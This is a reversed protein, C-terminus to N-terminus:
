RKRLIVSGISYGAGFSSLVALAGQPLDDQYTHFAIVSGASSTNGYTDLIVPAEEVSADRGLLKKVILHNMSLNAQHLWFRKVDTINIGNDQLHAAVLEAVMPCVERFVKRGEQVFLKDPASQGEDSTRNLFGFNNRINNSFQTLLRTSVIDFQYPSTALDAREVVVATAGDGFIFHSDRDRFNLHATCIEPSIVLLARAQGLQVSNCAAQIGFTASSCAVNMDFGYGAVGLAQQIEISIAPYARQLNSCAVIVGDIDAATKGARQLAQTAAAVGMECLISWEDNSREPLNPKMRQPDLIGEKDMVFRSKIGSAKEIFAASSESLAQVDGREIAAANDSNFQAVYANFSQVLEENSISNAPTFLGTGSIVVNHM